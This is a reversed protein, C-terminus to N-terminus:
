EIFVWWVDLLRQFLPFRELLRLIIPNTEVKDKPDAHDSAMNGAWDYSDARIEISMNGYYIYDWQYEPGPSYVTEQLEDNLFFEVREMGSTAEYCVATFCILWGDTPNGEFIEYFLQIFPKTQDINIIFFNHPTEEHGVNDIAWYEIDVEHGEDYQTLTFTGTDGYITQTSGGDVRYKIEKVGSANDTANLTVIVDSVYWGNCGDPEPPDLSHTSVPPITDFPIALCTIEAGGEFNGILTCNGTEEDCEYLQSTPSYTPLYLIDNDYDFHGDGAFISLPGVKTAEGTEFIWLNLFDWVYLTGNGDFAIGCIGLPGGISGVFEQEGTEPDYEILNSGSVGYLRNYVPDWSLGNCSTGGGGINTMDGTDPNITWLSGTGYECGYWIEETTWTGGSLFFTSETPALSYINGPDDLYFYCPGEPLGSSGSDAIYGYAINSRSLVEKSEITSELPQYNTKTDKVVNGTSSVVSVGILLFIIGIVLVTKNM